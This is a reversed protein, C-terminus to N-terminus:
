LAPLEDEDHEHEVRASVPLGAIIDKVLQVHEKEEDRLEAFLTRIEPDTVYELAQDYFDHAKQESSLALAYAQEASMTDRLAGQEPAEVDYLDALTVRRPTDGFRAKRRKELAQGHKAENEGMTAFVAAADGPFRHGLQKTFMEYRKYAEFETLVALDLADMLDMAAFDLRTNM